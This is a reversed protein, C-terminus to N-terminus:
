VYSRGKGLIHHVRTNVLSVRIALVGGGLIMVGIIKGGLWVSCGVLGLVGQCTGRAGGVFGWSAVGRVIVGGFFMLIFRRFRM